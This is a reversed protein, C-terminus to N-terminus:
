GEGAMAIFAGGSAIAYTATSLGSPPGSRNVVISTLADDVAYPSAIARISM